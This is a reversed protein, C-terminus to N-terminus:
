VRDGSETDEVALLDRLRVLGRRVLTKATGEPWGTAASIEAYPLDQLYRLALAVRQREPLRGLAALVDMVDERRGGVEVGPVGLLTGPDEGVAMERNQRLRNRVVNLTIRYLWARLMKARIREEPYHGLATLAREFTDQVTDEAAQKSRLMAFAYRYLGAYHREVLDRAAWPDGDALRVALPDIGAQESHRVKTEVGVIVVSIVL